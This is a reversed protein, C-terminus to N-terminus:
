IGWVELALCEFPWAHDSMVDGPECLVENEFAPCTASSNHSFTTDLLMGYAGSSVSGMMLEFISESM